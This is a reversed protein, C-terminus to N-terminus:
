VSSNKEEEVSSVVDSTDSKVDKTKRLAERLGMVIFLNTLTLLSEAGGHLWDVNSLSTGYKVKAPAICNRTLLEGCELM